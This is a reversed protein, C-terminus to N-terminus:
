EKLLHSFDVGGQKKKAVTLHRQDPNGKVKEIYLREGPKPSLLIVGEDVLIDLENRVMDKTLSGLKGIFYRAPQPKNTVLKKLTNRCDIAKAKESLYDAKGCIPCTKPLGKRYPHWSCGCYRCTLKRKQREEGPECHRGEPDPSGSPSYPQNSGETVYKGKEFDYYAYRPSYGNGSFRGINRYWGPSSPPHGPKFNIDLDKYDVWGCQFCFRLNDCDRMDVKFPAHCHPCHRGSASFGLM